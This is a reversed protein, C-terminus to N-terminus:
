RRGPILKELAGFQRQAESKYLYTAHTEPNLKKRANPNHAYDVVDLLYVLSMVGDLHGLGPIREFDTRRRNWLGGQCQKILEKCRPHIAIRGNVLMSRCRNILAEPNRNNAASFVLERPVLEPQLLHQRGFEAIELPHNDSVRTRPATAGFARREMAIIHPALVSVPSSNLCVEDEIVVTASDFDYWAALGHSFDQMGLDISTYGDWFEVRPVERVHQEMDFEPLVASEAETVIECGYERRFSTSKRGDIPDRNKSFQAAIRDREFQHITEDEDLPLRTYAGERKAEDILGVFEHHPSEPSTSACLMRGGTRQVQPYLVSRYVHECYRWFGSEDMFVLHAFPGRLHDGHEDDAGDVVCRSGNPHTYAHDTASWRPKIDDPLIKPIILQATPIVIQKAQERSPAAYVLRAGPNKAMYEFAITLFLWTKGAGRRWHIVSLMADNANWWDYARRQTPRLQYALTGRRWAEITDDSSPM